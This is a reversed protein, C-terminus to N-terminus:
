PIFTHTRLDLRGLLLDYFLVDWIGDDVEILGVPDHALTTSLFYPRGHFKIQGQTSVYRVEAYSPYEPGPIVAPLIRLSAAYHSAPSAMRLSEHPRVENYRSRFDDFRAQQETLSKGPPRTAEAKLTRHMREHAGNQHPKGPQIRDLGIGLKIFYVSLTSLRHVSNWAAFPLGNDTRIAKPLGYEAFLREFARRTSHYETSDFADCALLYRSHADQVTLPYCHSRDGLRFEGKFDATWTANPGTRDIPKAGPRKPKRRRQRPPHVLGARRLVEHAATPSPLKLTPHERAVIEILKRAGWDPFRVRAAVILAAIAEDTKHPSSHPARSADALAELGGEEFRDRWKYATKRSVGFRDALETMTYVGSQYAVIFQSREFMPNTAHWPM